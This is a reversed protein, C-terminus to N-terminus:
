CSNVTKGNVLMTCAGCDGTGCGEKSGTLGLDDRVVELLTRNPETYIDVPSGNLTFQVVSKAM